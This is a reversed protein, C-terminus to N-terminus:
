LTMLLLALWHLGNAGIWGAGVLRGMRDVWHAQPRWRRGVAIALWAGTVAFGGEPTYDVLSFEQTFSAGRAMLFPFASVMCLLIAPVATVCALFGPERGLRLLTPRPQRLRIALVALTTTLLVPLSVQLADFIALGLGRTWPSPFTLTTWFPSRLADTSAKSWALGFGTAAVFIMGDVLNFRRETRM